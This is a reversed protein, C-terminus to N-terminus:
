LNSNGNSKIKVRMLANLGEITAQPVAKIPYGNEYIVPLYQKRLAEKITEVWYEKSSDSKIIWKIYNAVDEDSNTMRLQETMLKYKSENSM